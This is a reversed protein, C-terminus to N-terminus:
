EKAELRKIEDRFEDLIHRIFEDMKPNDCLEYKFGWIFTDLRNWVKWLGTTDTM